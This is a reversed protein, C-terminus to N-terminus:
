SEKTIVRISFLSYHVNMEEVIIQSNAVFKRNRFTILLFVQLCKTKSLILMKIFQFFLVYIYIYITLASLFFEFLPEYNTGWKQNLLRFVFPAISKSNVWSQGIFSSAPRRTRNGFTFLERTARLKQIPIKISSSFVLWCSYAELSFSRSPPPPSFTKIVLIPRDFYLFLLFSALPYSLFILYPTM